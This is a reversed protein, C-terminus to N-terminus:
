NKTGRSSKPYDFTGCSQKDRYKGGKGDDGGTDVGIGKTKFRTGKPLVENLNEVLAAHFQPVDDPQMNPFEALVGGITAQKGDQSSCQFAAAYLWALQKVTMDWGSSKKGEGTVPNLSLRLNFNSSGDAFEEPEEVSIKVWIAAPGKTGLEFGNVSLTSPTGRPVMRYERQDEVDADRTAEYGSLAAQAEAAEDFEDTEVTQANAM